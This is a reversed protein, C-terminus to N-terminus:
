LPPRQQRRCRRFLRFRRHVPLVGTLIAAADAGSAVAAILDRLASAIQQQESILRQAAQLEAAEDMTTAAVTALEKASHSSEIERQRAQRNRRRHSSTFSLSRVLSSSPM